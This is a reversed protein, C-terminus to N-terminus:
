DDKLTKGFSEWASDVQRKSYEKPIAPTPKVTPKATPPTKTRSRRAPASRVSGAGPSRSRHATATGSQEGGSDTAGSIPPSTRVGASSVPRGVYKTKFSEYKGTIRIWIRRLIHLRNFATEFIQMIQLDFWEHPPLPKMDSPDFYISLRQKLDTVNKTLNRRRADHILAEALVAPKQMLAYVLPDTRGVVERIAQDFNEISYFVKNRQNSKLQQEMLDTFYASMSRELEKFSSLFSPFINDRHIYNKELLVIQPLANGDRAKVYREYFEERFGEFGDGYKERQGEIIRSLDIQEVLIEPSEKIAMAVAQLDLEREEKEKKKKTAGEIQAEIIIQLLAASHFFADDVALTRAASIDGYSRGVTRTLDLWFRPEKGAIRKKLDLLSTDITKALFGLLSTNSLYYRMKLIAITVAARLNTSTILIGEGRHGPVRIIKRTEDPADVYDALREVDVSEIFEKPINGVEEYITSQLPLPNLISERLDVFYEDVLEVYFPESNAVAIVLADPIRRDDAVTTRMIGIHERRLKKMLSILEANGGTEVGTSAAFRKYPIREQWNRCLQRFIEREGPSFTGLQSLYQERQRDDFSIFEPKM